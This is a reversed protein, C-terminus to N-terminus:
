ADNKNNRFNSYFKRFALILGTGMLIEIGSIPLPAGPDPPPGGGPQGFSYSSYFFLVLFIIRFLKSFTM